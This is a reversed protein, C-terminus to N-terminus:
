VIRGYLLVTKRATFAESLSGAVAPTILKKVEDRLSEVEIRATTLRELEQSVAFTTKEQQAGGTALSIIGFMRLHYALSDLQPVFNQFSTQDRTAKLQAYANYLAQLVNEISNLAHWTLESWADNATLGDLTDLILRMTRKSEEPNLGDFDAAAIDMTEYERPNLALFQDYLTRCRSLRTDKSM